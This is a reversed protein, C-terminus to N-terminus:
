FRSFCGVCKIQNQRYQTMCMTYWKHIIRSCSQIQWKSWPKLWITLCCKNNIAIRPRFDAGPPRMLLINWNSFDQYRVQVHLVDSMNWWYFLISWHKSIHNAIGLLSNQHRIPFAQKFYFGIWRQMKSGVQAHQVTPEYADSETRWTLLVCTM